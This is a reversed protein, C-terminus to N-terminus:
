ARELHIGAEVQETRIEPAPSYPQIPPHMNLPHLYAIFLQLM